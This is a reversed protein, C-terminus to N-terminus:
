CGAAPDKLRTRELGATAADTGVAVFRHDFTALLVPAGAGPIVEFSSMNSQYKLFRVSGAPVDITTRYEEWTRMNWYGPIISVDQLGPDVLFRYSAGSRLVHCGSDNLAFRPYAAAGALASPRYVYLVGQGSDAPPEVAEFSAGTAACGGIVSLAALSLSLRAVYSSFPRTLCTRETVRSLTRDSATNLPVLDRRARTM